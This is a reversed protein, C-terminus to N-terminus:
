SGEPPLAARASQNGETQREAEIARAEYEAALAQLRAVTLTDGVAKALRLCQEARARFVSADQM